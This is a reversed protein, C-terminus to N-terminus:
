PKAEKPQEVPTITLRCGNACRCRQQVLAFCRRASEDTDGCVTVKMDLHAACSPCTDADVPGAIQYRPIM